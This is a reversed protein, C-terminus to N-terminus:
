EKGYNFEKDTIGARKKFDDIISKLEDIDSISRNDTKLNIFRAMGNNRSSVTLTQVDDRNETCDGDQCYTVSVDDVYIKGDTEKTFDMDEFSKIVVEM